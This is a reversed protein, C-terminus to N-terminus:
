SLSVDKSSAWAQRRDAPERTDGRDPGKRDWSGTANVVNRPDRPRRDRTLDTLVNLLRAVDSPCNRSWVVELPIFAPPDLPLSVLEGRAEEQAFDAPVLAFARGDEMFYSWSGSIRSTGTLVLPELGRGRCADMLFDYYTPSHERPWLLLPLHSLTRLEARDRGGRVLSRHVVVRIEDEGLHRKLAGSPEGVLHGVGIDARGSEVAPLVQGTEVELVHVTLGLDLDDVLRLTEPLLRNVISPSAAVTVTGRAARGVEAAAREFTTVESLIGRALPLLREGAATLTNGGASRKLLPTGITRELRQVEKSVTPQSIGLRDAARGFHLTEGLAGFARLQSLTLNM